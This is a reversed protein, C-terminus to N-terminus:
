NMALWASCLYMFTVSATITIHESFDLSENIDFFFVAMVSSNNQIASSFDDSVSYVASLQSLTIFRIHLTNGSVRMCMDHHQPDGEKEVTKFERSSLVCVCVQVSVCKCM